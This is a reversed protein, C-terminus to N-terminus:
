RRVLLNELRDTGTKIFSRQDANAPQWAPDHAVFLNWARGAGAVPSMLRIEYTEGSDRFSLVNDRVTGSKALAPHPQLSLIYRGEGPFAIWFTAGPKGTFGLRDPMRQGHRWVSIRSADFTIPGDDVTYDRPAATTTAAPPEPEHALIEIYDTVKQKGDPSVMLDLEITDGDHVVQPAPYRLIPNLRLAADTDSPPRFTAILQDQGAAAVSLDYGFYSKNSRDIMIRHIADAFVSIGGEGLGRGIDETPAGKWSLVSRFRITIGSPLTGSGSM